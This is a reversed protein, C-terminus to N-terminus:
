RNSLFYYGPRKSNGPKKTTWRNRRNDKYGSGPRPEIWHSNGAYFTPSIYRMKTYMDSPWRDLDPNYLQKYYQDQFDVTTNNFKLYNGGGLIKKLVDAEIRKDSIPTFNETSCSGGRYNEEQSSGCGCGVNNFIIVFIIISISIVVIYLLTKDKM